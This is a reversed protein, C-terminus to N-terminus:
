SELDLTRTENKRYSRRLSINVSIKNAKGTLVNSNNVSRGPLIKEDVPDVTNKDRRAIEGGSEAGDVCGGCLSQQRGNM